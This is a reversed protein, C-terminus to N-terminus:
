GKVRPPRVENPKVEHITLFRIVDESLRLFRELEDIAQGNGRYNLQFYHGKMQKAIRYALQRRGLDKLTSDHGGFRGLVEGIKDNTKKVGEETLDPKLIYITEYSSEKM